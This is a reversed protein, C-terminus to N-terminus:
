KPVGAKQEQDAKLLQKFYEIRLLQAFLIFVFFTIGGTLDKETALEAISAFLMIALLLKNFHNKWTLKVLSIFFRFSNFTLKM